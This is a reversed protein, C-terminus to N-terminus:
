GRESQLKEIEYIFNEVDEETYEGSDELYIDMNQILSKVEDFFEEPTM